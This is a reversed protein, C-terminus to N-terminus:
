SNEQLSPKIGGKQSVRGLTGKGLNKKIISGTIILLIFYQFPISYLGYCTIASITALM